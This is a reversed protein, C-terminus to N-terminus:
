EPAEVRGGPKLTYIKGRYYFKEGGYSGLWLMSGLMDRLPYIAVNRLWDPDGMVGLITGAQLWRNVVLGLLWLVGALAHGSALGWVLGLLGFPMAFTLGSGLHGWPRSRRTSQMWRLQNRFSLWFPTDQVMLKIIHTAMKVGQGQKALRNGLEFDDAYFQGLEAFGGVAQFSKKPVAMTAGLAFKTGELMDAVLVGSTMEVSKGVADLKAAFSSGEGGYATGLYVCSAIGLKPDKLNQVMRRLYNPAVRVDADSTIYLEHAAVSDLKELSFVKANHFKPMPEGCTVYKANVQPYRQGVREALILGQDTAHRACFLLEFSPYDQEFFTELNREMGPETGHLPKLVSLPPLFDESAREDRRKRLGFRVAAAVVMLCYISSTVSGALAVYFLVRLLWGM